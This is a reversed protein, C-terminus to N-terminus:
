VPESKNKQQKKEIKEAKKKEKQEIKAARMEAKKKKVEARKQEIEQKRKKIGKINLMDDDIEHMKKGVRKNEPDVKVEVDDYPLVVKNTLQRVELQPYPISIKNRKLQNFIQERLEFEVSDGMPSLTWAWAKFSVGNDGMEICVLTPAPETLVRANALMTDVVVTRLKKIDTDYAVTFEVTVRRIPNATYNEIKKGILERNPIILRRNDFTDVVTSLLRLEHVYCCDGDVKIIDNEKFPKTFLIIIGNALSALTDQLALAIAIGIASIAAIFGTIPIGIIECLILIFVVWLAITITKYIFQRGLKEIKSKVLFKKIIKRIIAIVIYGIIFVAIFRLLNVGSSAFYDTIKDWLASWDM